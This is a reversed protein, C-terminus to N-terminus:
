SSGHFESHDAESAHPGVHDAPQHCGAVGTHHVVGVAVGDGREGGFPRGSHVVGVGEDRRKSCGRLMQIITGAPTTPETASPIAGFSASPSVSM